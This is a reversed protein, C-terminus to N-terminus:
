LDKLFVDITGQLDHKMKSTYSTKKIAHKIIRMEQYTEVM